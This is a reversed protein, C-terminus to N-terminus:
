KEIYQWIRFLMLQVYYWILIQKKYVDFNLIDDNIVKINNIEEKEIEHLLEDELDVAFVYYGM